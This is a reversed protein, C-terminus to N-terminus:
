SMDLWWTAVDEDIWLDNEYQPKKEFYQMFFFWTQNPKNQKSVFVSFRIGTSKVEEWVYETLSFEGFHNM